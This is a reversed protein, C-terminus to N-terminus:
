LLRPLLPKVTDPFERVTSHSLYGRLAAHRAENAAQPGAAGVRVSGLVFYPTLIDGQLLSEVPFCFACFTLPNLRYHHHCRYHERSIWVNSISDCEAEPSVNSLTKGESEVSIWFHLLCHVCCMIPLLYQHLCFPMFFGYKQFLFRLNHKLNYVVPRLPYGKIDYLVTCNKSVIFM